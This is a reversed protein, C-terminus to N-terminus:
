NSKGDSVESTMYDVCRVVQRPKCPTIIGTQDDFEGVCWLEKDEPFTNLANPKQGPALSGKVLRIAVEDNPLDLIAPVGPECGFAAKIDRVTYLKKM